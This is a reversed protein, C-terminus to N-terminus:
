EDLNIHENIIINWRKNAQSGAIDKGPKLATKQFVCHRSKAANYLSDALPEKILVEELIYGLRQITAIPTHQFFSASWDNPKLVDTLDSLVSVSRNIGGIKNQFYILDAVTLALSSFKVFGTETKVETLMNEAINKRCVFNVTVGKKKLPRLAPPKCFVMYDQPQQHSSGYYSAANLLGVYYSRNLHKMLDDIFLIPPMIGRNAYKLPIILYFGKWIALIENKQVQRNLASSVATESLGPFATEAEKRSFSIAGRKQLDKIWDKIKYSSSPTDVIILLKNAFIRM